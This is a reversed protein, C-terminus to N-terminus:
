ELRAFVTDVAHLTQEIDQATHACSTYVRGDPLLYIGEDLMAKLYRTLKDKDDKWTDRYQNLPEGTFHLAFATGFGTVQLGLNAGRAEIGDRLQAGLTNAETLIAGNGASLVDLAANAAALSM